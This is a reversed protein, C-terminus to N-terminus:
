SGDGTHRKTEFIPWKGKTLALLIKFAFLIKKKICHLGFLGPKKGVSISDM